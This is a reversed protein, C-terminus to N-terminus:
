TSNMSMKMRALREKLERVALSRSERNNEIKEEIQVKKVEVEVKEPHSKNTIEVNNFRSQLRQLTKQYDTEEVQSKEFSELGRKIYGKFYSGMGEIKEDVLVQYSPYKQLLNWLQELAKKSTYKDAINVFIEDLENELDLNARPPSTVEKKTLMQSLYGIVPNNPKFNCYDFVQDGFVNVVEHLITKVTRLPMDVQSDNTEMTKRKWYAPPAEALFSDIEELLLDIKLLDNKVYM